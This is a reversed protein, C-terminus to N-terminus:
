ENAPDYWADCFRIDFINLVPRPSRRVLCLLPVVPVGAKEAAALKILIHFQQAHVRGRHHCKIGLKGAVM